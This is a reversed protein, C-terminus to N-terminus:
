GLWAPRPGPPVHLRRREGRSSSPGPAGRVRWRPGGAPRAPKKGRVRRRGSGPLHLMISRRERRRELTRPSAPLVNRKRGRLPAAASGGRVRAVGRDPAPGWGPTTVGSPDVRDQVHSWPTLTKWRTASGTFRWNAGPRVTLQQPYLPWAGPGVMSATSPSRTRMRTVLLSGSAVDT